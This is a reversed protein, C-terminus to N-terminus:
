ETGKLIRINVRDRNNHYINVQVMDKKYWKNTENSPDSTLILGPSSEIIQEAVLKAKNSGKGYLSLSYEFGSPLTSEVFTYGSSYNYTFPTGNVWLSVTAGRSIDKTFLTFQSSYYSVDYSNISHKAFIEGFNSYLSVGGPSDLNVLSIINSLDFFDTEVSNYVTGGKMTPLVDKSLRDFQPNVIYKGEKNIVGLKDGSAVFAIDGNFQSAGSFQANIVIKGDEDIYGWEKGVKVAALNSGNFTYASSFQPNIVTKGEDDCWGYKGNQYIQFLKGDFDMADFQANIIYKGEKDIVGYKAGSRVIANNENQAVVGDFQYNIVIKGEKNIFGWKGDKNSVFCMDASFNGVSRFQPNIKTVGKNDVFGWLLEGESDSIQYAALGNSFIHVNQADQLTFLTKGEKDIAVPPANDAVVWAIGERFITADKYNANIKYKGEEDIFGFKADDGSARVLALGESFSSAEAFQPNIIIEGERNIYQYDSSNDPKVPILEIKNNSNGCGSFTLICFFTFIIFAVIKNM